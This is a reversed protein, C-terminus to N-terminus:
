TLIKPDQSQAGNQDRCRVPSGAEEEGKLGGWGQVRDRMRFYM